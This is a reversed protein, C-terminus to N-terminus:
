TDIRRAVVEIDYRTRKWTVSFGNAVGSGGPFRGDLVPRIAEQIHSSRVCQSTTCQLVIVAERLGRLQLLSEVARIASAGLPRRFGGATVELKEIEPLDDRQAGWELVEAAPDGKIVVRALRKERGMSRLFVM